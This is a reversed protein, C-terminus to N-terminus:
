NTGGPPVTTAPRQPRNADRFAKLQQAMQDQTITGAQVQSRLERAKTSLSQRYAARDRMFQQQTPTMNELRAGRQGARPGAAQRRERMATRAAEREEPSMARIRERRERMADRRAQATERGPAASGTAPNGAQASVVSPLAMIMAVVAIRLTNRM